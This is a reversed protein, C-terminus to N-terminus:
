PARRAGVELQLGKPGRSKTRRARRASLGHSGRWLSQILRCFLSGEIHRFSHLPPASSPHVPYTPPRRLLHDVSWVIVSIPTWRILQHMHKPYCTWNGISQGETHRALPPFLRPHYCIILCNNFRQERRDASKNETAKWNKMRTLQSCKHHSSFVTVTDFSFCMSWTKMFCSTQQFGWLKWNLQNLSTILKILHLGFGENFVSGGLNKSVVWM